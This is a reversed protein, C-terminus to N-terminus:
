PSQQRIVVGQNRRSKNDASLHSSNKLNELGRQLAEVATDFYAQEEKLQIEDAM